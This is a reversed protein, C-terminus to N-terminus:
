LAVSQGRKVKLSVDQPVHYSGYYTNIKEVELM